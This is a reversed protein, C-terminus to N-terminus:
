VWMFSGPGIWCPPAVLVVWLPRVDIQIQELRRRAGASDRLLVLGHRSRALLSPRAVAVSLSGEWRVVRRLARRKMGGDGGEM